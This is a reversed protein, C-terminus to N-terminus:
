HIGSQLSAFSKKELTSNTICISNTCDERSMIEVDKVEHYPIQIEYGKEHIYLNDVNYSIEKLSRFTKTFTHFIIFGMLFGYLVIGYIGLLNFGNWTYIGAVIAYFIILGVKYLKFSKTTLTKERLQKM